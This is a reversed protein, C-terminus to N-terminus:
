EAKYKVSISKRLVGGDNMFTTTVDLASDGREMLKETFSSFVTDSAKTESIEILEGIKLNKAKGLLEARKDARLLLKKYIREETSENQEYITRALRCEIGNNQEVKKLFNAKETVDPIFVTYSIPQSGSFAAFIINIQNEEFELDNRKIFDLVKINSKMIKETRNKSSEEEFNYDFDGKLLYEFSM